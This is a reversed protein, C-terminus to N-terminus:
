FLKLVKGTLIASIVFITIWYLIRENKSAHGNIHEDIKKGINDIDTKTQSTVIKHIDKTVYKGPLMEVGTILRDLKHGMTKMQENITAEFKGLQEFRDYFETHQQRNEEETM